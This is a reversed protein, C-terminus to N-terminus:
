SSAFGFVSLDDALEELTPEMAPRRPAIGLWHM